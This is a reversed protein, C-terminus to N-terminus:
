VDVARREAISQQLAVAIRTAETADHLTVPLPAGERVAAVFANVEAVFADEFREYYTPTCENRVGHADAIDVRTARPNAGIELRGATGVVSTMSEHGHAATRSAVFMAVKGGEFECLAVGNDLDGCAKLGEHIAVTGTAFVRKARSGGLFWRAADIDHVSMDCFIGGSTPAFRVFFGSPDNMDVTQSRVMFPTGIAGDKVKAYADRYSADFRRVYGILVVRDPRRAAAAEVRLCDEVLLSTPKESFVHLGADLAAIINSAHESTPTVIAVADLGPHGLLSPYDAYTTGVGLEDQAWAREAAVPSCAAVLEAGPCRLALNRAHRAGMRGLGAIGIRLRPISM